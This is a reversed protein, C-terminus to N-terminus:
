EVGTLGYRFYQVWNQLEWCLFSKSSSSSIKECKLSEVWAWIWLLLNVTLSFTDVSNRLQTTCTYVCMNATFFYRNCFIKYYTVEFILIGVFLLNQSHPIALNCPQLGSAPLPAYQLAAEHRVCLCNWGAGTVGDCIPVEPLAQPLFPYIIFFNFYSPLHKFGRRRDQLNLCSPLFNMWHQGFHLHDALPYHSDSARWHLSCLGLM